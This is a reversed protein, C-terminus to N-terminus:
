QLEKFDGSVWRQRSQELVPPLVYLPRRTQGDVFLQVTCGSAAVSDDEKKIRYEINIRAADSWIMQAHVFVREDLYLPIRYDIHCQVIPVAVKANIFDQFSLGCQHRLETSAEEFYSIYHGHWVIGMADVERFQIKRELVYNLPAPDGENKEFYQLTRREFM